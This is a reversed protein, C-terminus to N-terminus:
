GVPLLRPTPLQSPGARCIRVLFNLVNKGLRRASHVVTLVREVFRSGHESDTGFSRKRWLVAGRLAREAANNTPEVGDRYLFTWLSQEDRLLNKCLRRVDADDSENGARLANAFACRLAEGIQSCFQRRSGAQPERHWVDFLQKTIALLAQGHSAADGGLEVLGRLDRIVHAWCIQRRRPSLYKYVPFRDCGLVGSFGRLLEQAVKRNRRNRIMYLTVKPTDAVWLWRLRSAEFWSTEDANAVSARRVARRAEEYIPEMATSAMREINAVSGLAIKVGFFDHVLQQTARKSLHYEGTCAVIIGQLQPGFAGRPVGVPWPAQNKKGCHMCRLTHLQYETVRGAVPPIDIVQHRHPDVDDGSMEHGCHGCQEPRVAIVEDPTLM